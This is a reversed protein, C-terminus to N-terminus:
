TSKGQKKIEDIKEGRIIKWLPTKEVRFIVTEHNDIFEYLPITNKETYLTTKTNESVTLRLEEFKEHISMHIFGDESRIVEKDSPVGAGFTKFKTETLHLDGNVIGYTEYWPEKEVSHIWGIEFSKDTLYFSGDMYTMQITPIKIAFIALLLMIM